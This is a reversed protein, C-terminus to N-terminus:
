GIRAALREIRDLLQHSPYRCEEVKGVLMQLYEEAQARTTLAAEIRDLLEGSPFRDDRVKDFLLEVYTDHASTTAMAGDERKM